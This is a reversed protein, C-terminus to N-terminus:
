RMSEYLSKVDDEPLSSKLELALQLVPVQGQLVRLMWSWNDDDAPNPTINPRLEIRAKHNLGQASLYRRVSPCSPMSSGEERKECLQKHITRVPLRPDAKAIQSVFICDSQTMARSQGCDSRKRRMLWSFGHKAYSYWWGEIASRSYLRGHDDPWTHEAALTLADALNKDLELLFSVYNIVRYRLLATATTTDIITNM